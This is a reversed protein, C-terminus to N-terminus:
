DDRRDFPVCDRMYQANVANFVQQVGTNEIRRVFSRTGGADVINTNNTVQNHAGGNGNLPSTVTTGSITIQNNARVRSVVGLAHATEHNITNGVMHIFANLARQIAQARAAPVVAPNNSALTAVGNNDLTVTVNSADLAACAGSVSGDAAVTRPAPVGPAAVTAAASVGVSGFIARFTAQDLPGIAGAATNFLMFTTPFITIDAGIGEHFVYLNDSLPAPGDPTSGFNGGAADGGGVSSRMSQANTIAPNSIFRVNIRNVRNPDNVMYDRGGFRRLADEIQTRFPAIGFNTLDGGFNANFILNALVPVSLDVNAPRDKAVETGGQLLTIQDIVYLGHPVPQGTAIAPLPINVNAGSNTNVTQRNSFEQPAAVTALGDWEVEVTLPDAGAAVPVEVRSVLTFSENVDPTAANDVRNTLRGFDIRLTGAFGPPLSEVRVHVKAHEGLRPSFDDEEFFLGLLPPKAPIGTQVKVFKVTPPPLPPPPQECPSLLSIRDYFNCAFTDGDVDFTRRLEGRPTRRFDGDAHFRKRCQAVGEKAKPCPWSAPKIESGSRFLYVVVRRNINNERDREAKNAPQKFKQDEPKSFVMDPNFESCGQFDGKGGADAGHALFGDVPDVTFPQDKEDICISNMYALYLKPRTNQGPDGDPVLGAGQPSSQFKKVAEKTPGDLVGNIPGSYHGLEKLMSQISRTGWEDGGLPHKFLDEWLDTKRTLLGYMAQARRGSLQKNYDDNGSPDAHGFISAPRTADENHLQGLLKLETKSEPGIFSSDFEFRVDDFRVCAEPAFDLEIVNFEDALSPGVLASHVERIPLKGAAGGTTSVRGPSKLGENSM